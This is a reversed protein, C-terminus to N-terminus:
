PTQLVTDEFGYWAFNISTMIAAIKFTHSLSKQSLIPGINIKYLEMSFGLKYIM